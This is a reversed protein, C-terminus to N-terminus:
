RATIDTGRLRTVRLARLEAVSGTAEAENSACESVDAGEDAFIDTARRGIGKSGGTVPARLGKLGLDM